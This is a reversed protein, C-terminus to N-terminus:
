QFIAVMTRQYHPYLMEEHVPHRTKILSERLRLLRRLFLPVRHKVTDHM